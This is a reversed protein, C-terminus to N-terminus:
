PNLATVPAALVSPVPGTPARWAVVTYPNSRDNTLRIVAERCFYINDGMVATAQVTVATSNAASLYPLPIPFAPPPLGQEVAAQRESLYQDVVVPNAAPLALLIDRAASAPNIGAQGSFVTVLPALMLYLSDSMGLVQRLEEIATFNTNAPGYKLGAALYDEKEAGHLRRLSDPDRWDAIADVLSEAATEGVGRSVFLNKLLQPDVSNLDVKGGEDAIMIALRAGGFEWPHVLGNAKWSLPDNPRPSLLEGIAKYVGADAAAEAQAMSVVNGAIALETRTTFVLSGAIVSLLALMWLVAVLAVGRNNPRMTKLALPM